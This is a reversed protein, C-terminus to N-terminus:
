AAKSARVTVILPFHEDDEDLQRKRLEEAAIGALIAISSLVNGHSSVVLQDRGFVEGFLRTCSAVTFRWFEHELWGPDIRSVCPVTCLLVGGPRLIRHCHSVAAELDYVYQLTQTLIFCDFFDAPISDARSLDAIITARENTPDIDLVHKERVDMGFRDTYVPEKVELSTGRISGRNESLFREIYYRDIPTGRELGWRDSLPRTRRLALLRPRRVRRVRRALIGRRRM